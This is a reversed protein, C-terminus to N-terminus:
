GRTVEDDEISPHGSPSDLDEEDDPESGPDLLELPAGERAVEKQIFDLAEKHESTAAVPEGKLARRIRELRVSVEAESRQLVSQVADRVTVLELEDMHDLADLIAELSPKESPTIDGKAEVKRPRGPKRPKEPAAQKTDPASFRGPQVKVANADLWARAADVKLNFTQAFTATDTSPNKRLWALRVERQQAIEERSAM